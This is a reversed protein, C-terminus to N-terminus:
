LVKKFTEGFDGEVLETRLFTDKKSFYNFLNYHRLLQSFIPPNHSLGCPQTYQGLKLLRPM